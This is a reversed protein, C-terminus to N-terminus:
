GSESITRGGTSSLRALIARCVEEPTLADTAVRLQASAYARARRECLERLRQVRGAADLGALLPRDQAEGLRSALTEPRADLWVMRGKAGLIARNEAAEVAGGGLKLLEQCGIRVDGPRLDIGVAVRLRGSLNGFVKTNLRNGGDEQQVAIANDAGHGDAATVLHLLEM